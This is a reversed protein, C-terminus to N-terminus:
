FFDILKKTYLKRVSVGNGLSKNKGNVIKVAEGFVVLDALDFHREAM